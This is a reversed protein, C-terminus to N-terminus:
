NSGTYNRINGNSKPIDGFDIHAKNIISKYLKEQYKRTIPSDADELIYQIRESEAFYGKDSEDLTALIKKSETYPNLAM